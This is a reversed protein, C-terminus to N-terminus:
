NHSPTQTSVEELPSLQPDQPWAQAAPAGHASPTQPHLTDPWCIHLPPQMSVVDLVLL